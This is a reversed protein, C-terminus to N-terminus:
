HACSPAACPQRWPPAPAGAAWDAATPPRGEARVLSPEALRQPPPALRKPSPSTATTRAPTCLPMAWSRRSACCSCPPLLPPPLCPPHATIHAAAPAACAAAMYHARLPVHRPRKAAAAPSCRRCCPAAGTCCSCCAAAGTCRCQAAGTCGVTCCGLLGRGQGGGPQVQGPARLPLARRDQDPRHGPGGGPRCHVLGRDRWVQPTHLRLCACAPTLPRLRARLWLPITLKCAPPSAGCARAPCGAAPSAASRQAASPSVPAREGPRAAGGGQQRGMM